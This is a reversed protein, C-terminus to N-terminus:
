LLKEEKCKSSVISSACGSRLFREMWGHKRKLDTDVFSTVSTSPNSSKGIVFMHIKEGLANSAAMGTLRVKSHKGGLFRKVRLHFSKSPLAKYFLDFEDGTFIDKLQYTAVLTPLTTEEWPATM